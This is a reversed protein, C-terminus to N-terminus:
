YVPNGDPDCRAPLADALPGNREVLHGTQISLPRFPPSQIAPNVQRTIYCGGFIRTGGTTDTSVLALPVTSYVSGAAGDSMAQGLEIRTSATDAYGDAFTQYDAVPKEDFYSWARAYERRDIANYLSRVITEASSRDDLYPADSQALAPTALFLPLLLKLM